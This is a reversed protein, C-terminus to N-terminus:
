KFLKNYVCNIFFLEDKLESTTTLPGIIKTGTNLAAITMKYLQCFAVM